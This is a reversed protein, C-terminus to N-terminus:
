EVSLIYSYVPQGGPYVSVDLNDYKIELYESLAKAESEVANEGYIVTIIESDDNVLEDILSKAIESADHGVAKIDNEVMGLIDGEHIQKDEIVTDRVAYTVLATKVKGAAEAMAESNEKAEGEPSFSILASLGQPITNTPIVKVNTKAIKAAQNAAMLINKNNPLVYVNSANLSNIANLIDETSPNMTQGGPIISAGLDKFMAQVGDGAAVAIVANKVEPATDQPVETKLEPTIVAAETNTNEGNQEVINSHQLKMNEIKIASLEGYRVAHELIFGPNNTHIHIKIIDEDDIIVLCDGTKEIAAKLKDARIASNYKDIILETCYTFKIDETKIISQPISEEEAKETESLEVVSGTKLYILMGEFIVMLGKGGADVVGAQKLAPLMDPTMSLTKNGEDCVCEMLAVFDEEVCESAAGACAKIITLITGETPKMVARYAGICGSNLCDSFDKCTLVSKGKAGKSIGRFIQSLIVGSNGRAGRLTLSAAADAVKDVWCSDYPINKAANQFTLSMNTGTDGDPVPFVNLSDVKQRSNSLNNAGSKIMLAFVSASLEKIM